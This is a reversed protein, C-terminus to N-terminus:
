WLLITETIGRPFGAILNAIVTSRSTCSEMTFAASASPELMEAHIVCAARCANLIRSPSAATASHSASWPASLSASSSAARCLSEPRPLLCPTERGGRLTDGAPGGLFSLAPFALRLRAGHLRDDVVGRDQHSGIAVISGYPGLV